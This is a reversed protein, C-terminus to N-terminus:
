NNRITLSLLQIRVKFPTASSKSDLSKHYRFSRQTDWSKFDVKRTEGAPIRSVIKVERQHFQRGDVAEYCISVTMSLVESETLNTVFMSENMSSGKKDFGSFRIYNDQLGQQEGNKVEPFLLMINGNELPHFIISDTDNRPTVVPFTVGKKPKDFGITQQRRESAFAPIMASVLVALFFVIKIKM